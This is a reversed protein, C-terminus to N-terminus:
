NWGLEDLVNELKAREKEISFCQQKWIYNGMYQYERSSVDADKSVVVFRANCEDCTLIFGIDVDSIDHYADTLAYKVDCAPCDIHNHVVMHCCECCEEPYIELTIGGGMEVGTRACAV